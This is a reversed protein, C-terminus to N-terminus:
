RDAGFAALMPALKLSTEAYEADPSSGRVVGCGAYAYARTASVIASRLGVFADANGDADIWGIPGAYWGRDPEHDAIWALARERPTGGVAPTPHLAEILAFADLNSPVRADIPTALHGVSGITRLVTAGIAVSANARELVDRIGDVVITHERRDKESAFLSAGDPDRDLSSTGAVAETRVRAGRKRFLREPTAGVFCVGGHRVCFRTAGPRRLRALTAIPDLGSPSTITSRRAVVVKSLEGTGIRELADEITSTWRSSDVHRVRADARSSPELTPSELAGWIADLEALVFSADSPEDRDVILTLDARGLEVRHTWRPLTLQGDGLPRWLEDTRGPAFAFGFTWVPARASGDFSLTRLSTRSADFSRAADAFRSAGSLRVLRTAGLATLTFAEDHVHFAHARLTRELLALPRGVPAPVTIATPGLPARALVSRLFARVEDRGFVRADTSVPALASM